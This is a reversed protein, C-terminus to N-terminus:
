RGHHGGGRDGGGHGQDGGGHGWHNGQDDHDGHEFHGHVGPGGVVVGPGDVVVGPAGVVVGPAGVVVGPAGVVVGPGGVGIGPGGVVVGPGGVVVGPGGVFVAPPGWIAVPPAEPGVVVVDGPAWGVLCAHVHGHRKVAVTVNVPAVGVPMHGVVFHGGPDPALVVTDPADGGLAVTVTRDGPDVPKNDDDLMYARVEGNQKNAVVEVRDPGVIQVVGGNPGKVGVPLKAQEKGTDVLDQTGDPSVDIVGNWPKGDVNLAYSVPTIDAELKPGAATLLGTKPDYEVPVSKDGFKMQGTVTAAIPKGSPDKLVAGVTGDPNILWAATGPAGKQVVAAASKEIADATLKKHCGALTIILLLTHHARM